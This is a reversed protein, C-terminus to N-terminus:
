EGYRMECEMDTECQETEYYAVYWVLGILLGILFGKVFLKM